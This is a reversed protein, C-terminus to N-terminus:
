IHILSLLLKKLFVPAEDFRHLPTTVSIPCWSWGMLKLLPNHLPLLQIPAQKIGSVEAM